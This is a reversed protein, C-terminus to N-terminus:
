RQDDNSGAPTTEERRSVFPRSRPTLDKLKSFRNDRKTEESDKLHYTQSYHKNAERRRDVDKRAKEDKIFEQNEERYRHIEEPLNDMNLRYVGHRVREIIGDKALQNLPRSISSPKRDTAEAIRAKTAEGGLSVLALVYSLKTPGVGRYWSTHLISDVFGRNELLHLPTSSYYQPLNSSIGRDIDIIGGKNSQKVKADKWSSLTTIKEMDVLYHKTQDGKDKGSTIGMEKLRNLSGYITKFSGKRSIRRLTDLSVDVRLLGEQMRGYKKGHQIMGWVVDWDTTHPRKVHPKIYILFEEVTNVNSLVEPGSVKLSMKTIGEYANRLEKLDIGEVDGRKNLCMTENVENLFVWFEEETYEGTKWIKGCESLITNYRFGHPIRTPSIDNKVFVMKVKRYTEELDKSITVESVDGTKKEKTRKYPVLRDLLEQAERIPADLYVNETITLFQDQDYAELINGDLVVHGVRCPLNGMVPVRLGTRSPTTETYSGVKKILDLVWPKIIEGAELDVVDDFDLFVIGDGKKPVFGIGDVVHLNKKLRVANDYSMWIDPDNKDWARYKKPESHINIPVKRGDPLYKWVIWRKINKLPTLKDTPTSTLSKEALFM